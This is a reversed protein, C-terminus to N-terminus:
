GGHRRRPGRSKLRAVVEAKQEPLVDAEIETLGLRRGIAKATTHNDGTLM